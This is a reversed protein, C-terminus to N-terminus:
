CPQHGVPDHLYGPGRTKLGGAHMWQHYAGPSILPVEEQSTIYM